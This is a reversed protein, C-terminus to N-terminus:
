NHTPYEIKEVQRYFRKVPFRSMLMTIGGLSNGYFDLQRKIMERQEQSHRFRLKTPHTIESLTGGGRVWSVDKIMKLIDFSFTETLDTDLNLLNGRQCRAFRELDKIVNEMELGNEALYERLIRFATTHFLQEMVFISKARYKYIINGGLKGSAYNEIEASVDKVLDEPNSWLEKKTDATFEEYMEIFEPVTRINEHVQELWGSTPIKLIRLLANIEGFIRDNYFLGTTLYLRRAELYDEFSLTNTSICIEEIDTVPIKQGKWNYCGVSRQVPRFASQMQYKKRSEQNSLETGHILALQHQTINNIGIDVLADISKRETALSDHPLALIIESYTYTDTDSIRDSLKISADTSINSRKIAALVGEDMSQVSATFRIAGNLLDSCSMIREKQNKGTTCAIYEPYGTRKQVESLYRCFDLDEKYMGFNSDTIRLIKTHKTKAVIYDIEAIKRELSTRYVKQYYNGGETCFTCTFPCGRNTQITPVLRQEFFKDLLGTTYPSPIVTLDELRPEVGGLWPEGDVLSHCSLLKMKQITRIDLGQLLHQILRSFPVEGDKYIHIDIDPYQALWAMQEEAVDPYNPGGFVTVINPNEKKALQVFRYGLNLNWLYNSSAIVDPQRQEFEKSFEEVSKIIKIEVKNGCEKLCYAAILGLQLPITESSLGLESEHTLDLMHILM